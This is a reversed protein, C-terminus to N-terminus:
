PLRRFRKHKQGRGTQWLGHNRKCSRSHEEEADRIIGVFFYDQGEYRREVTVAANIRDFYVIRKRFFRIMAANFEPNDNMMERIADAIAKVMYATYSIKSEGKEQREAREAACRQLNVDIWCPILWYPKTERHLDGLLLQLGTLPRKKYPNRRMM